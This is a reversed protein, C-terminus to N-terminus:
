RPRGIGAAPNQAGPRGQGMPYYSGYYGFATAHGSRDLPRGLDFTDGLPTSLRQDVEQIATRLQDYNARRQFEPITGLYYNAATDGGRILNLYPSM